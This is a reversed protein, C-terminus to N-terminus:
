CSRPAGSDESALSRYLHPAEILEVNTDYSALKSEFCHTLCGSTARGCIRFSRSAAGAPAGASEPRVAQRWVWTRRLTVAFAPHDAKENLWGQVHSGGKRQGSLSHGRYLGTPRFGVTTQQADRNHVFTEASAHQLRTEAGADVSVLFAGSASRIDSTTMTVLSPEEPSLGSAWSAKACSKRNPGSPDWYYM